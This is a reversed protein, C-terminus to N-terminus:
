NRERFPPLSLLYQELLSPSDSLYYGIPTESISQTRMVINRYEYGSEVAFRVMELNSNECAVEFLRSVPRSLYPWFLKVIDWYKRDIAYMVNELEPRVEPYRDFVKKMAYPNNEELACSLISYPSDISLSLFRDVLANHHGKIAGRLICDYVSVLYLPQVHPIVSDIIDEHGFEGALTLSSTWISLDMNLVPEIILKEYGRSFILNMIQKFHTLLGLPRCSIM